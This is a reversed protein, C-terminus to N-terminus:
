LLRAQMAALAEGMKSEFDVRMGARTEESGTM